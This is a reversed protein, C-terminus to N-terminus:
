IEEGRMKWYNAKEKAFARRDIESTQPPVEHLLRYNGKHEDHTLEALPSDQKQGIHHLEVPKGNMLPAKGELMREKNTKGFEDKINYDIDTRQFCARGNVDKEIVNLGKYAAAEEKWRINDVIGVSWGTETKLEQKDHQNLPTKDHFASEEGKLESERSVEIRQNPNFSSPENEIKTMSDKLDSQNTKEISVIFRGTTEM